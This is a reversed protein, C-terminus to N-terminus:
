KARLEAYVKKYTGFDETEGNVIISWLGNKDRHFIWGKLWQFNQMNAPDKFLVEDKVKRLVSYYGKKILSISLIFARVTFHEWKKNLGHYLKYDFYKAYALAEQTSIDVEERLEELSVGVMPLVM